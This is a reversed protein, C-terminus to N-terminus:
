VCFIRDARDRSVIQNLVQHFSVDGPFTAHYDQVLVACKRPGANSLM